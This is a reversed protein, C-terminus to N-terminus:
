FMTNSCGKNRLVLAAKGTLTAYVVRDEPIGLAEIIYQVSTSKGTGAYGAITTYAEKNRYREVCTKIALEQGRTLEM